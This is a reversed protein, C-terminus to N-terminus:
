CFGIFARWAGPERGCRCLLVIPLLLAIHPKYLALSWLAGALVPRDPLLILGWGVIAATWLGNQGAVANVFVAPLAAAYLLWHGRLVRRVCLALALWGGVIWLLWGAWFPLAGLPATLLMLFPPYAFHYVVVDRAQPVVHHALAQFGAIDYAGRAQGELALRASLAFDPFDATCPRDSNFVCSTRLNIMLGLMSVGIWALAIARLRSADFLYAHLDARRVGPLRSILQRQPASRSGYNHVDSPM